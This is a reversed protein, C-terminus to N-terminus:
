KAAEPLSVNILNGSPADVGSVIKSGRGKAILALAAIGVVKNIASQYQSVHGNSPLVPVYVNIRWESDSESVREVKAIAVPNTMQKIRLRIALPTVWAEGLATLRDAFESENVVVTTQASPRFDKVDIILM